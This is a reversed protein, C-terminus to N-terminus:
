LNDEFKIEYIGHSEFHDKLISFLKTADLPSFSPVIKKGKLHIALFRSKNKRDGDLPFWNNINHISPGWRHIEHMGNELSIKEIEDFTISRSTALPFYYKRILICVDTVKCTDDLYLIKVNDEAM